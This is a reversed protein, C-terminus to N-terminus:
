AHDLFKQSYKGRLSKRMNKGMNKAFSPLGYSKVFIRYRRQVLYRMM